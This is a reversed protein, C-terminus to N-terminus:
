MKQASQYDSTVEGTGIKSAEWQNLAVSINCLKKILYSKAAAQPKVNIIHLEGEFYNIKASRYFRKSIKRIRGFAV